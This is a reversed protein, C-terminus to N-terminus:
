AESLGAVRDLASMFQQWISRQRSLVRRGERTLKYYRRRRQGAKEVWRGEVWGRKELRYLMPYLSAVRFTLAGESRSEILKSIEYGHRPREEVLALVLLAASGKKVEASFMTAMYRSPTYSPLVQRTLLPAGDRVGVFSSRILASPSRCPYCLVVRINSQQM